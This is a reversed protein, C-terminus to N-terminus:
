QAQLKIPSIHLILLTIRTMAGNLVSIIGFSNAATNADNVDTTTFYAVDKLQLKHAFCLFYIYAAALIIRVKQSYPRVM